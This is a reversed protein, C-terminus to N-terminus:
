ESGPLSYTSLHTNVSYIFSHIWALSHDCLSSLDNELIVKRSLFFLIFIVRPEPFVVLVTVALVLKYNFIGHRQWLVGVLPYSLLSSSFSKQILPTTQEGRLKSVLKLAAAVAGSVFWNRAAVHGVYDKSNKSISIMLPIEGQKTTLTWKFDVINIALPVPIVGTRLIRVLLERLSAWGFGLRNGSFLTGEDARAAVLAQPFGSAQMYTNTMSRDIRENVLVGIPISFM